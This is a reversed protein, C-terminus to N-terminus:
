VANEISVGRQNRNWYLFAYSYLMNEMILRSGSFIYFYPNHSNRLKKMVKDILM